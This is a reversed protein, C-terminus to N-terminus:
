APRKATLRKYFERAQDSPPSSLTRVARRTDEVSRDGYAKAVKSANVKHVRVVFTGDSSSILRAQPKRIDEALKPVVKVVVGDKTLMTKARLARDPQNKMANLVKVASNLEKIKQKLASQKTFRRSIPGKKM